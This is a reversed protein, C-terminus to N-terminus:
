SIKALKGFSLSNNLNTSGYIISFNWPPSTPSVRLTAHIEKDTEVVLDVTLEDTKWMLVIGGSVGHARVQYLGTFGLEEMLPQHEHLRTETLALVSPTNWALIAKINRKFTPNTAERCNWLIFKM